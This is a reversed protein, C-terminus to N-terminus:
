ISMARCDDKGTKDPSIDVWEKKIPRYVYDMFTLLNTALELAEANPLVEGYEEEYLRKFDQLATQSLM